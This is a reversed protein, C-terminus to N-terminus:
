SCTLRGADIDRRVHEKYFEVVVDLPENFLKHPVPPLERKWQPLEEMDMPDFM